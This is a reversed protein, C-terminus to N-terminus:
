LSVPTMFLQAPNDAKERSDYLKIPSTIYYGGEKLKVPDITGYYQKATSQTYEKITVVIMPSIELFGEETCPIAVYISTGWSAKEESGTSWVQEDKRAIESHNRFHNKEDTITLYNIASKQPEMWGSNLNLQARSIGSGNDKLNHLQVKDVYYSYGSMNKGQIFERLTYDEQAPVILSLRVIAIKTDLLVRRHRQSDHDHGLHCHASDVMTVDNKDCIALSHGMALYFREQISSLLGDQYNFDIPISDANAKLTDGSSTIIRRYPYVFNVPTAYYEGNGHKTYASFDYSLVSYSDELEINSDLYRNYSLKLPFPLSADGFTDKQVQFEKGMVAIDSYSEWNINLGSVGMDDLVVSDNQLLTPLAISCHYNLLRKKKTLAELGDEGEGFKCSTLLSLFIAVHLLCILRYLYKM